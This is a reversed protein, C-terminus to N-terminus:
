RGRVPAAAKTAPLAIDRRIRELLAARKAPPADANQIKTSLIAQLTVREAPTAAEYVDLADELTLSRVGRQLYSLGAQKVAQVAQRPRLTGEAVAERATQVGTAPNRQTDRRVDRRADRAAGQEQTLSPLGRRKQLKHLVAEAETRSVTAPADTIGFLQLAVDTPRIAGFTRRTRELNSVTMPKWQKLMYDFVQRAQETWPDKENRIEVGFFDENELTRQLLDM